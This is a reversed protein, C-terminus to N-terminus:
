KRLNHVLKAAVAWSILTFGIPFVGSTLVAPISSIEMGSAYLALLVPLLVLAIVFKYRLIGSEDSKQIVHATM